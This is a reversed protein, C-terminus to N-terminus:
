TAAACGSIDATATGSPLGKVTVVGTTNTTITYHTTNGPADRLYNPVLATVSVAYSGIQAKYAEQATEVSKYDTKCSSVVSTKTINSVAFVVIAALIGLIVVVILLEILTFGGEDGREERRKYIRELTNKM